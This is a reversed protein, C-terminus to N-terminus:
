DNWLVFVVTTKQVLAFDPGLLSADCSLWGFKGHSFNGNPCCLTCMCFLLLLLVTNSYDEIKKERRQLFSVVVVVVAVAVCRGCWEM